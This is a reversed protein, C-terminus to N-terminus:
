RGVHTYTQIYAHTHAHTHAYKVPTADCKQIRGTNISGFQNRIHSWTGGKRYYRKM